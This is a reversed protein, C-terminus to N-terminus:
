SFRADAYVWAQKGSALRTSIRKYVPPEYQDAKALETDSIEFVTGPVRSDSRGNCKVIAHTKSGTAASEPDDIELLLQEFGILADPQGGLLRGFVSLQVDEQQLTGYSFLLPV